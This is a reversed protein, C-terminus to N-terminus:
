GGDSRTSPYGGRMVPVPTVSTPAPEAPPVSEAPPVQEAPPVSEAPPVQEALEAPLSRESAAPQPALPASMAPRPSPAGLRGQPLLGDADLNKRLTALARATQSKM